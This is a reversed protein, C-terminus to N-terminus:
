VASEFGIIEPDPGNFENLPFFEITDMGLGGNWRNVTEFVARNIRSPDPFGSSGVCITDNGNGTRISVDGNFLTGGVSNHQEIDVRDNGGGTVLTFPGVFVCQSISMRDFGAGGALTTAGEVRTTFLSVSNFDTLSPDSAQLIRLAGGIILNEVTAHQDRGSGMDITLGGAVSGGFPPSLGVFDAGAGASIEVRGGLTLTSGRLFVQSWGDGVSVQVRRGIATPLTSEGLYVLDFGEGATITVERDVTLGIASPILYTTSWGAGHRISIGGVRIGTANRLDVKDEGRGNFINLDGTVRLDTLANGEVLSGGAGNSISLNGGVTVGDNLYVQDYGSGNVINIGGGTTLFQLDILNDGEGGDIRLGRGINTQHFSVVDNAAGLRMSMGGTVPGPLFVFEQPSGGNLRFTTDGEEDGIRIGEALQEIEVVNAERDGVVTVFGDAYTINVFGAPNERVELPELSLRTPNM